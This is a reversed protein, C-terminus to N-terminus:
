FEFVQGQAVYGVFGAQEAEPKKGDNYHYLWIKKKIRPPLTNLAEFRVHVTSHKMATECDHFILDAKKYWPMMKEPTFQTDTTILINTQNLTFFLGYSPNLQNGNYTHITKITHFLLKNWVFQNSQIPHVNFFTDISSSIGQLSHLGGELTHKWLPKVLTKHVYLHPRHSLFPNYRSFGLWELGGAHDAHAHSIYVHDIADYTFGQKALSHRADSGCDILLRHTNDIELLINSHYNELTFAAGSGLFILKISM